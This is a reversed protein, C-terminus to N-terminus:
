HFIETDKQESFFYMTGMSWFRFLFVSWWSEEWWITESLLGQKHNTCLVTCLFNLLRTGEGWVRCEINCWFALPVSFTRAHVYVQLPYSLSCHFLSIFINIGWSFWIYPKQQQRALLNGLIVGKGWEAGTWYVSILELISESITCLVFVMYCPSVCPGQSEASFCAGTSCHM